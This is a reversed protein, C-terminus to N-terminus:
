ESAQPGRVPRGFRPGWGRNRGESRLGRRLDERLALEMNRTVPGTILLGDAHRPSAVMQIGFRGSGLRGHGSCERRGRLRQLWGRQGASTEALSWLTTETQRGTRGRSASGTPGALILDNRRRVALRYDTNYAIAQEPCAAVCDTCFLCKGLDISVKDALAVARTPCADALCSLRGPVQCCRYDTTRSVIRM